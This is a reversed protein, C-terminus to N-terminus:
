KEQNSVKIEFPLHKTQALFETQGKVQSISNKNITLNKETKNKVDRAFINILYNADIDLTIEIQPVGQPAPRAIEFVLVALSKNKKPDSSEGELLHIVLSPQYDIATTFIESKRTPISTNRSILPIIKNGAIEIGLSSRTADLLLLDYIEGTLIATQIAGGLVVIEEPNFTKNPLKGFYNRNIEQIKPIRTSGGVLIIEDINNKSLGANKITEEMLSPLRQLIPEILQEFKIRTLWLNLHAPNNQRIIIYPLDINTQIVSSLEIKAKEAVERIRSLATQENSLDIGSEQKFEEVIWKMVIETLLDGSLGHHGNISKVEVVGDGVEFISFDFTGGGFDFVALTADKKTMSHYALAAATTHSIIRLVNFGALEFAEKLSLIYETSALNPCTIVIENKIQRGWSLCVNEIVQRILQALLQEPTFNKKILPCFIEIKGTGDRDIKFSLFSNKQSLDGSNIKLFQQLMFFSNAPDTLALKQAKVGSVWGEEKSFAIVSSISKQGTTNQLISPKENEFVAIRISSTGIDIAAMKHSHPLRQYAMSQKILENEADEITNKFGTQETELVVTNVEEKTKPFQSIIPATSLIQHKVQNLSHYMEEASQFRHAPDKELAQLVINQLMPPISDPFKDPNKSVIAYFLEGPSTSAFPLRGTLLQYLIVGTAWIDGKTTLKGDLSEPSMYSFTGSIRLTQATVNLIRALGFDALRPTKGQLLINDPKLDRHIINKSHLHALGKLIDLTIEIASELDSNKVSSQNLKNQLSGDPAFESVLVFNNEHIFAEIIPLINPHGSATRWTKVEQKVSELDVKNGSILKLAVLFSDIETRNEALWVDGFAGSGLHRILFYNKIKEKTEAM